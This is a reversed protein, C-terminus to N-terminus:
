KKTKSDTLLSIRPATGIMKAYDMELRVSAIIKGAANVIANATKPDGKGGKLKTIQEGLISRLDNMRM